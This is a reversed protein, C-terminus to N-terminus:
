HVMSRLLEAAARGCSAPRFLFSPEAREISAAFAQPKRSLDDVAAVIAAVEPAVVVGLRPRLSVEVPEIGLAEWDPNFVKKAVDVFVIPRRTLAAFELAVGSYDSVLVDATGISRNDASPDELSFHAFGAGIARLSELMQPEADYFSPHPRVTVHMGCELLRALLERGCVDLLNTPGWSPALLVHPASPSERRSTASLLDLKGYGVPVADRAPLGHSARMAVLEAVHHPGAAFLVDYDDFAHPPYAM